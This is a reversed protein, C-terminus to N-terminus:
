KLAILVKHSTSMDQIDIIMSCCLYFVFCFYFMFSTAIEKSYLRRYMLYTTRAVILALIISYSQTKVVLKPDKTWTNDDINRIVFIEMLLVFLVYCINLILLLTGKKFFNHFTLDNDEPDQIFSSSWPHSVSKWCFLAVVMEM